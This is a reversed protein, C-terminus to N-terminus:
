KSLEFEDILLIKNQANALALTMGLIRLVGDGLRGISVPEPTSELLV